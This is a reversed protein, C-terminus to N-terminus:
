GRRRNYSLKNILRDCHLSWNLKRDLTMGLLNFSKVIAVRENEVELMQYSEPTIKDKSFIMCKTKSFNLMLKNARFWECLLKFDHKVRANLVILNHYTHTITTDDAYGFVNCYKSVEFMDFTMICPVLPGLISGQGVGYEVILKDSFEDGLKVTQSCSEFYNKFWDNSLGRIGYHELKKFLLKRDIVDFAKSLDAFIAMTYCKNDFGKLVDYCFKSVLDICSHQARFGFQNNPFLDKNLLWNYTQQHIVRELVKSMTPLLSIPRYNTILDKFGNKYLPHVISNKWSEPVIGEGISKNIIISLPHCISNVIKKLFRNSLGDNGYSYKDKLSMIIKVVEQPTVHSFVLTDPCRNKLYQDFSKSATPIKISVNKGVNCFYDNFANSMDKLDYIRKSNKTIYCPINSKDNMRGLIRNLLTWSKKMNGYNDSFYNRYYLFKAHRKLKNLTNRYSKYVQEDITNDKWQRFLNKCKKTSRLLGKSIWPEYLVKSAKVTVNQIPMYLDLANQIVMNFLEASETLSFMQLNEWKYCNLYDIVSTLTKDNIRRGKFNVVKDRCKKENITAICPYHDSTDDIVITSLSNKCLKENVYIQDILTATSKTVRTPKTIMPLLNFECLTDLLTQVNSNETRLLDINQDTCVIKECTNKTCLASLFDAFYHEPTNPIRDVEGFCINKSLQIEVFVSEINQTTICLDSLIRYPISEKIFLAVGEGKGTKRNNYVLEYGPINCKGINNNHLFTECLAILDPQNGHHDKVLDKLLDLNRIVSRVNLHLVTVQSNSSYTAHEQYACYDSISVSSDNCKSILDYDPDDALNLKSFVCM